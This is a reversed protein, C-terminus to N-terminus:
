ITFYVDRWVSARLHLAVIKGRLAVTRPGNVSAKERGPECRDDADFFNHWGACSFGFAHHAAIRGGQIIALHGCGASGDNGGRWRIARLWGGFVGAAEALRKRVVAATAVPSDTM